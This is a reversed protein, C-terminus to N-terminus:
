HERQYEKELEACDLHPLITWQVYFPSLGDNRYTAYTLYDLDIIGEM